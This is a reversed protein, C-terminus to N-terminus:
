LRMVTCLFWRVIQNCSRGQYFHLGVGAMRDKSSCREAPDSFPRATAQKSVRKWRERQIVPEAALLM